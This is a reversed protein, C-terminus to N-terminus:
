RRVLRAVPSRALRQSLRVARSSSLRALRDRLEQNAVKLRRNRHRVRRAEAASRVRATEAKRKSDLLVRVMRTLTDPASPGIAGNGQRRALWVAEHPIVRLWDAIEEGLIERPTVREVVLGAERLRVEFDDGYIRVHDRQGFRRLREEASAEPDEETPAGPRWPVQLLALGDPALVRHIEEMARRDEPVHELVHYCVLLDVVGDSLPLGTLSALLDVRRNDAGLDLRLYRGPHLNEFLSTTFRTPAVDLLLGIHGLQPTLLGLLVALFRHRELSKCSPCRADPRGGPGPKFPRTTLRDCLPCYRHSM